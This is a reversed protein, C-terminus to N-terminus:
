LEYWSPIWFSRILLWINNKSLTQRDTIMLQSWLYNWGTNLTSNLCVFASKCKQSKACIKKLASMLFHLTPLMKKISWLVDFVLGLNKLFSQINKNCWMANIAFCNGKSKKLWKLLNCPSEKIHLFTVAALVVLYFPIFIQPYTAFFMLSVNAFKSWLIDRWKQLVDASIQLQHSVTGHGCSIFWSVWRGWIKSEWMWFQWRCFAGLFKPSAALTAM